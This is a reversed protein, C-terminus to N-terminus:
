SKYIVARSFPKVVVVDEPPVEGTTTMQEKVFAKLTQANVTPVILSGNGGEELWKHLAVKDKVSVSLDGTLTCRGFLGNKISTTGQEAMADPIAFLRLRDYEEQLPKLAAKVEEITDDLQKMRGILSILDKSPEM